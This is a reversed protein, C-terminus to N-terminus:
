IKNITIVLVIQLNDNEMIQSRVYRVTVDCESVMIKSSERFLDSKEQCNLTRMHLFDALTSGEISNCIVESLYLNVLSVQPSSLTM